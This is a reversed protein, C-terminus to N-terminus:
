MRVDIIDLPDIPVGSQWVEFHLHPGTSLTGSNGLIAIAEGKGVFEGIDKLLTANHKYISILGNRHQIIITYGTSTSWDAFIVNGENIARIPSNSFGGIDIGYHGSKFNIKRNVKGKLPSVFDNNSKGDATKGTLKIDRSSIKGPDDANDGVSQTLMRRLSENYIDQAELKQELDNLSNNLRVVYANDEISAYGPIM